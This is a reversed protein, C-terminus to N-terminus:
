NLTNTQKYNSYQDNRHPERYCVDRKPNIKNKKMKKDIKKLKFKKEFFGFIGM